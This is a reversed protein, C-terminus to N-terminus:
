RFIRVEADDYQDCCIAKKSSGFKAAAVEIARRGYRRAM